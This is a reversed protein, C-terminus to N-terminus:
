IKFINLIDVQVGGLSRLQFRVDLNNDEFYQLTSRTINQQEETGTLIANVVDIYKIMIDEKVRGRRTLTVAFTEDEGINHRKVFDQLYQKM